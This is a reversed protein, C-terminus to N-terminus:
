PRVVPLMAGVGERTLTFRQKYEGKRISHTVNKVYYNGDYTFGVGRLGVVGRPQLLDEYRLADLEGTATVVQDTSKDTLAQAQAFAKAYDLGAAEKPKVQRINPFNFPLAPFLALPPQRTSIFTFVPLPLNLTSDQVEGLVMTPAMANYQFNISEVNSNPGMNVSLAKQPFDLRKPPGWYAMNMSPVPGPTIYFVHGHLESLSQIYQLDTGQQIPIRESSLPIPDVKPPTVHPLISYQAYKAILRFVIMYDSHFPFPTSEEKMDMMVSVDEGTITLTSAGPENSPSLQHNTIIGDMLVRPKVNFTAMLIVRNFPRLLPSSLLPTDLLDIPGARGVQFTIQFGSRGEDGQTVEVSELAELLMPPAPVPVTPGIWMTLHIGFLNM